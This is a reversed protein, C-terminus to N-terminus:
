FTPDPQGFAITLDVERMVEGIQAIRLPVILM